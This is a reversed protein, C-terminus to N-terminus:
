TAFTCKKDIEVFRASRRPIRMEIGSSVQFKFGSVFFPLLYM